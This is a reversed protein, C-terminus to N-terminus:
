SFEIFICCKRPLCESFEVRKTYLMTIQPALMWVLWSDEYVCCQLKRPLCESFEICICCKRPLCESLEVRKMYLMLQLKSSLCESLEVRKTYLLTIQPALMWFVWSKEYVANYNAPCANLCSLEKWICCQSKCSLCESLEVRRMYLMTIQSSLM